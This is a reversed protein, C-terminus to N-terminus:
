TLAGSTSLRRGAARDAIRQLLADTAPVDRADEVQRLLVSVAQKSIGAVVAAYKGARDYETVTLYIAYRRAVFGGDFERTHLPPGRRPLSPLKRVDFGTEIASALLHAHYILAIQTLRADAEPLAMPLAPLTSHALATM